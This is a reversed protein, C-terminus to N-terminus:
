LNLTIRVSIGTSIRYFELNIRFNVHVHLLALMALVTNFFFFLVSSNISRSKRVSQTVFWYDLKMMIVYSDISCFFFDQFLGVCICSWNTQCFYWPFDILLSSDKCFHQQFLQIDMHFIFGSTIGDWLILKFHVTFRFNIFSFGYFKWFFVYSFIIAFFNKLFMEKFSLKLFCLPLSYLSLM